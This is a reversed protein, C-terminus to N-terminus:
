QHTCPHFCRRLWHLYHAKDIALAPAADQIHSAAKPRHQLSPFLWKTCSASQLLPCSPSAFVHTLMLVSASCHGNAPSQTFIAKIWVSRGQHSGGLLAPANYRRKGRPCAPVAALVAASFCLTQVHRSSAQPQVKLATIKSAHRQSQLCAASVLENPRISSGEGRGAQPNSYVSPIELM